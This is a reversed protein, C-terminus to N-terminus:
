GRATRLAVVVDDYRELEDALPVLVGREVTADVARTLERRVTAARRSARWRALLRGLVALLVGAAVGGLLLATPWPLPGAMPTEPVPLRLYGAGALGGLWLAGAIAATLFLVQLAGLARWWGPTRETGVDARAVTRDLEDVLGPVWGEADALVQSRWRPPLHRTSSWVLEHVDAHVAASHASSVPPLSTPATGAGDLHLRRLPDPRLRAVWRLPPWGVHRVARRVYSRRVAQAVTEVGAARAASRVLGDAARAPVPGPRSATLDAGSAAAIAGAATAVDAGLRARAARGERAVTALRATLDALGAGTRASALLVEVSGLGDRALLERLHAVVGDVDDPALRDVQNLVVLSVEAHETMQQLYEEHIVGDAYKQPDVVWVLVDVRQALRAAVARNEASTSDIDPLDLLVLGDLDRHAGREVRDPVDLWDLLDGASDEGWVVALPRRTTPRRADVRAVDAGVFRNLLSSKGSGTAGLFAAVTLGAGLRQREAARELVDRAPALVEEPLRGEAREVAHGLQGLRTGLDPEPARRRM